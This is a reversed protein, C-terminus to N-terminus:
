PKQNRPPPQDGQEKGTGGSLNKSEPCKCETSKVNEKGCFSCFLRGPKRCQRRTHGRQGCHWCCDNRSYTQTQLKEKSPVVPHPKTQDQNKIYEYEEALAALGALNSFDKRRIYLKYEPRLNEYIREMPDMVTKEPLWRMMAQIHTIFDKAKEKPSQMRRRIDDELKIFYRAPLFYTRFAETFQAWTSWNGKNNRYWALTIGRFMQPLVILLRDPPIQYSVSLEEMREIFELANSDGEFKLNWKRAKDMVEADTLAKTHDTPKTRIAEILAQVLQNDSTVAPEPAKRAKLYASYRSRLEDLTGTTDLPIETMLEILEEKKLTYLKTLDM